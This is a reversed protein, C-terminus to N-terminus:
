SGGGECEKVLAWKWAGCLPRKSEEVSAFEGKKNPFYWKGCGRYERQQRLSESQSAQGFSTIKRVADTISIVKEDIPRSSVGCACFEKPSAGGSSPARTESGGLSAALSAVTSMVKPLGMSSRMYDNSNETLRKDNCKDRDFTCTTLQGSTNQFSFGGSGTSRLPSSLTASQCTVFEQVKSPFTVQGRSSMDPIYSIEDTPQDDTCGAGGDGRAQSVACAMQKEYDRCEDRTKDAVQKIMPLQLKEGGGGGGGGGMASTAASTLACLMQPMALVLVRPLGELLNRSVITPFAHGLVPSV